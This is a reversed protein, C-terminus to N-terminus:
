FRTTFGALVNTKEDQIGYLGQAIPVQVAVRFYLGNQIRVIVRPTVYLVSGGTNPDQQGPAVDDKAAWRYNLEVVGNLWKVLRREYALNALVANGYHYAFDNTGNVRGLVSGFVSGQDGALRSFSLGLLGGWAGTSPQVHEEAREGDIQGNSLGWPMQVGASVSLWTGPRGSGAAIRFNGLLEPNSLGSLSQGAVSTVTRHSFPVQAVLTLRRGFTRTFSLTFRDETEAERTDPDEESVQDKEYRGADLGLRWADPVFIQSGVLMFTPDGCYCMSCAAAPRAVALLFPVAVLVRVLTRSM